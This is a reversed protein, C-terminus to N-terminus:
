LEKKKIIYYERLGKSIKNMLGQQEPCVFIARSAGPLAIPLNDSIAGGNGWGLTCSTAPVVRHVGHFARNFDLGFLVGFFMIVSSSGGL